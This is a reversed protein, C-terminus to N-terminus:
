VRSGRMSTFLRAARLGFVGALFGISPPGIFYGFYGFLTARAIARAQAAPEVLQGVLSFATPAIVSSGIGMIIFGAYAMTPTTSVAALSVGIASIVAGGTLMVRPAVRHALGQGFLRAVGMTIAMVAPGMAGASPSGGLTHEIHLASWNEAANETMFAIMVIAGGVIPVLGLHAQGKPRALGSIRGDAEFTLAAIAAAFVAMIGLVGSPPLGMSRLAGTAIAGFALGFSYGAHCLNMLPAAHKQELAAVRANMVVDTLGTGAGCASMSAAFLWPVGVHGPLVFALCMLLSAMPLALRGAAVGFRPAFIMATVAAVPTAFLLLGLHEAPVDLMKQIDPVDAAFSGWLVGMASFAALPARARIVTTLVPM